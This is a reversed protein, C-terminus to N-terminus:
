HQQRGPEDHEERMRWCRQGREWVVGDGTLSRFAALVDPSIALNGNQNYYTFDESFRERIEYAAEQQYLFANEKLYDLMWAAVDSVTAV